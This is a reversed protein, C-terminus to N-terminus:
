EWQSRMREKSKLYHRWVPLKWREIELDGRAGFGLFLCGDGGVLIEEQCRVSLMDLIYHRLKGTIRSQMGGEGVHNGGGTRWSRVRRECEVGLLFRASGVKLICGSDWWHEVEAAAMGTWAQVERRPRATVEKSIRGHCGVIGEAM